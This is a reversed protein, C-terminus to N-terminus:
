RIQVPIGRHIIREGITEGKRQCGTEGANYKACNVPFPTQEHVGAGDSLRIYSIHDHTHIVRVIRIAYIRKHGAPFLLGRWNIMESIFPREDKCSSRGKEMDSPPFGM